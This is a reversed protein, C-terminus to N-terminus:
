AILYDFEIKNISESDFRLLNYDAIIEAQKKDDKEKSNKVGLFAGVSIGAAAFVTILAIIPKKM